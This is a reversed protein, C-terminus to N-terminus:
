IIDEDTAIYKTDKEVTPKEVVDKAKEVEEPMLMTKEDLIELDKRSLRQQKKARRIITSVHRNRSFFWRIRSIKPTEIESIETHYESLFGGGVEELEPLKISKLELANSLFGNGVSKVKPLEVKEVSANDCFDDGVEELSPLILSSIRTQYGFSAGVKRLKPLDLESLKYSYAFSTDGAEILEPMHVTKLKDSISCFNTGVKELKPFTVEELNRVNYFSDDGLETLAPLSINKLERAHMLGREGMKRLKPMHLETISTRRCFDDGAVEINPVDLETVGPSHALFGDGVETLEHNRYGIIRDDKDVTIVVPEECGERLVMIHKRGDGAEKDKLITIKQIDTLGETFADQTKGDHMSITKNELDIVFCDILYAKSPDAIKQPEGDTIVINEPCYYTNGIRTNFKYYKGDNARVYGPIGFEKKGSELKLGREELVREFSYTLGPAIKELDNGLTADPNDVTHNYRNKISVRTTGERNFQISMVSTGYEDDREPSDFDKRRIDKVNKKVAWFVVCDDLRDGNFTCLEEGKAYYKKFAQIEEETHCEVLYYGAEDLLEYPTKDTTVREKTGEEFKEFVFDVFREELDGRQLDEYLTESTDSFNEQLIEYLKDGQELITPFHTRCMKMFREGYAKKIKRLVEENAMKGGFINKLQM